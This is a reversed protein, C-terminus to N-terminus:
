RKPLSWVKLHKWLDLKHLISSEMLTLIFFCIKKSSAILFFRIKLLFKKNISWSGIGGWIALFRMLNLKWLVLLSAGRLPVQYLIRLKHLIGFLLFVLIPPVKFWSRLIILCTSNQVMQVMKLNALSLFLTQICSTKLRTDALILYSENKGELSFNKCNWQLQFHMWSNPRKEPRAGVSM